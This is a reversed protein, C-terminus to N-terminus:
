GPLQPPPGVVDIDHAAAASLIRGVDFEWTAPADGQVPVGAARVFDAFSM